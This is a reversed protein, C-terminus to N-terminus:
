EDIGCSEPLPSSSADNEDRRGSFGDLPSSHFFSSKRASKFPNLLAKREAATTSTSQTRFDRSGRELRNIEVSPNQRHSQENV